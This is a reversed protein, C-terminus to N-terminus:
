FWGYKKGLGTTTAGSVGGAVSGLLNMWPNYQANQSQQGYIGAQTGFTQQAFNLASNPTYGQVANQQGQVLPVKNSLSLGLNQYYQKWDQNAQNTALGFQEQAQPNYVLNRGLSSKLTDAVNAQYWDPASQNMGNSAIAGLQEGLKSQNPYLQDQISKELVALEPSYQKELDVLKPYNAIYESLTATTSPATPAAPQKNDGM